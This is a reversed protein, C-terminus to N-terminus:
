PVVTFSIPGAIAISDLKDTALPYKDNWDYVVYFEYEGPFHLFQENFISIYIKVEDSPVVKYAPTLQSIDFNWSKFHNKNGDKVFWQQLTEIGVAKYAVAVYVNLARAIKQQPSEKTLATLFQPIPTIEAVIDVFTQRRFTSGDLLFKDKILVGGRLGQQFSPADESYSIIKITEGKVDSLLQSDTVRFCLHYEGLKTLRIKHILADKDDDVYLADQESARKECTNTEGLFWEYGLIEGNPHFASSIDMELTSLVKNGESKLDSTHFNAVPKFTITKQDNNGSVTFNATAKSTNETDDDKVTLTVFFNGLNSTTFLTKESNLSSLVGGGSHTWTYKEIQGGDPDFSSSADLLLSENDQATITFRPVPMKQLKPITVYYEMSGTQEFNDTVVLKIKHVEGQTFTMFALAGEKNDVQGNLSEWEYNTITRGEDARSSSADLFVTAPVFDSPSVTFNATPPGSKSYDPHVIITKQAQRKIEELNNKLDLFITYTGSKDFIASAKSKDGEDPTITGNDDRSWEYSSIESSAVYGSADFSVEDFPVIGSTPTVILSDTLSSLTGTTISPSEVSITTQSQAKIKEQNDTLSLIITYTGGKNFTTSAEKSSVSTIEGGDSRSWKYSLNSDPSTSGSADLSVTLPAAGFIPDAVFYAQVTVSSSVNATKVAPTISKSGLNDKVNLTIRYQGERDFTISAKKTNKIIPNRNSTTGRQWNYEYETISNANGEARSASADLIVTLGDVSSVFFDPTPLSSIVDPPPEVVLTSVTVNQQAPTQSYIDNNDKVHLSITYTGANPLTISGNAKSSEYFQNNNTGLPAYIYNYLVISKGGIGPTSASADLSVSLGKAIATFAPTPKDSQQPVEPPDTTPPNTPDTTPPKISLGVTFNRTKKNSEGAANWVTLTITQTGSTSLQIGIRVQNKIVIGTSTTWEFRTIKDKGTWPSSKGCDVLVFLPAPGSYTDAYFSAKPAAFLTTPIFVLNLLLLVAWQSRFLSFNLTKLIKPM